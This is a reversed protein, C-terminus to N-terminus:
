IMKNILILNIKRLKIKKLNLKKKLPKNKKLIIDINNKTILYGKDIIEKIKDSGINFDFAEIDFMDYIITNECNLEKDRLNILPSYILSKFFDSFNNIDIKKKEKYHISFGLTNKQNKFYYIPCSSIIAGDLYYDDNYKIPTFLIPISMSMRVAKYVELNPFTKHNIYELCQKNINTAGLILNINTLKYLELMTINPNNTKKNIIVKLVKEFSKGDDLGYNNFFNLFNDGKINLFYSPKVSLSIKELESPKYGLSYLLSIVSGASVGLINEVKKCLDKEYIYKYAGVFAYGQLAGSSFVLNKIIM